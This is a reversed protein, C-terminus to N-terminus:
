QTQQGTGLISRVRVGLIRRLSFIVWFGVIIVGEGQKNKSGRTKPSHVM